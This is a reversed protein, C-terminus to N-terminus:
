GQATLRQRWDQFGRALEHEGLRELRVIHDELYHRYLPTVQKPLLEAAQAEWGPPGQRWAHAAAVLSQSPVGNEALYSEVAEDNAGVRGTRATFLFRVPFLVTKTVKRVGGALLLEPRMLEDVPGASRLDGESTPDSDSAQGALRELAFKAGARLLEARSPRALGRRADDNGAILRGHDVLDLRDLAPFRGGELEGRLTAPTGWFVSLRADLPAGSGRIRRVISDIVAADEGRLPDGLVV